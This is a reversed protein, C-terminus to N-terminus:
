FRLKGDYFLEINTEVEVIRTLPTFKIEFMQEIRGKRTESMLYQRVHLRAYTTNRVSIHFAFTKRGMSRTIRGYVESKLGNNPDDNANVRHERYAHHM